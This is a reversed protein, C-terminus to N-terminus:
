SQWHLLFAAGSLLYLYKSTLYLSVTNVSCAALTLPAVLYQGQTLLYPSQSRSEVERAATNSMSGGPVGTRLLVVEWSSVQVQFFLVSNSDM